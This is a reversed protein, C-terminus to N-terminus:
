EGKWRGADNQVEEVPVFCTWEEGRTLREAAKAWFSSGSVVRALDRAWLHSAVRYALSPDRRGLEALLAKRMPPHLTSDLHDPDIAAVQAILDRLVVDAEPKLSVQRDLDRWAGHPYAADLRASWQAMEKSVAQNDEEARLWGRVIGPQAF